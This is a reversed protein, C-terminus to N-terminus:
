PTAVAPNPAPLELANLFNEADERVAPDASGTADELADILAPEAAFMAAMREREADPIEDGGPTPAIASAPAAPAVAPTALEPPMSAPTAPGAATTVAISVPTDPVTSRMAWWLIAACGVAALLISRARPRKM